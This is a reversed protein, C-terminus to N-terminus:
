DWRAVRGRYATFDKYPVIRKKSINLLIGVGLLHVLLSSGGYSVFPFPLGTTPFLNVVVCANILANILVMATIGGALLFGYRDPARLAIRIGRWLVIALLVFLIFIGIFGFEEGFCALIFDSFPEPLFYHKQKGVGYGLGKFGGNALGIISQKVHYSM